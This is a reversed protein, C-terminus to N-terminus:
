KNLNLDGSSQYKNGILTRSSRQEFPQDSHNFDRTFDSFEKSEKYKKYDSSGRKTLNLNSQENILVESPQSTFPDLGEDL